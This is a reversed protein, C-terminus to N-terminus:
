RLYKQRVLPDTEDRMTYVVGHPGQTTKVVRWLENEVGAGGPKWLGPEVEMAKVDKLWADAAVFSQGRMGEPTLSAELHSM